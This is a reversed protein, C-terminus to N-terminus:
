PQDYHTTDHTRRYPPRAVHLETELFFNFGYIKVEFFESFFDHNYIINHDVVTFIKM